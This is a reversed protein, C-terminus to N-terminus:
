IPLSALVAVRQIFEFLQKVGRQAVDRSDKDTLSRYLLDVAPVLPLMGFHDKPFPSKAVEQFM